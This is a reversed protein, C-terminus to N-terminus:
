AAFLKKDALIAEIAVEADTLGLLHKSNAAYPWSSTTTALTTFDYAVGREKQLKGMTSM